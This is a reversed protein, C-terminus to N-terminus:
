QFITQTSDLADSEIDGAYIATHYLHSTSYRKHRNNLLYEYREPHKTKYTESMWVFSATNYMIKSDYAHLWQGNEGLAEGHDSVFIVIANSEQLPKIIESIVFDTYRVTNDYSNVIAISDCESIIRSIITPKYIEYKDSYHSCYWWHSGITHILFLQQNNTKVLNKYPEIIDEDLWKDFNYVGKSINTAITTDAENIFYAYPKEADQNTITITNFNATKFIDIFSREIYARNPNKKDARTLLQPVSKNTYAYESFISDMPIVNLKELLPTTNRYYGNMSLNSPRLAEGIVIVVIISDSNAKAYTCQAPRIAAIEKKEQFYKVSTNVINFPIREVIPRHFRGNPNLLIIFIIINLASIIWTTYNKHNISYKKRLLGLTIACITTIIVWVILQWTVMDASVAVDNQFMIDLIMTNFAFNITYRFYALIASLISTFTLFCTFITSGMLAVNIIVSFVAMFITSWHLTAMIFDKTSSIPINIFDTITFTICVFLSCILAHSIWKIINNM